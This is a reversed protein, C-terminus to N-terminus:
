YKSKVKGWTVSLKGDDNVALNASPNDMDQKIEADTLARNYVKIEDILGNMFRQNGGRAGIYLPKNNASLEGACNLRSTEKGDVFTKIVKGDWTGAIHHWEGDNVKGGLAEDDCEEPLDNMQLLVSDPNYCPLLNYEGAEWSDGKEVASQHEATMGKILVWCNITMAKTLDLSDADKVELWCGNVIQICSNFKGVAWSAKGKLVAHNGFPSLDKSVNGSNEDLPLYMVLSPEIGAYVSISTLFLLSFTVIYYFWNKLYDGEM